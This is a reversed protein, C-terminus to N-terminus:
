KGMKSRHWSVTRVPIGLDKAIRGIGDGIATRNEIVWRLQAVSIDPRAKLPRSFLNSLPMTGRPTTTWTSSATRQVTSPCYGTRDGVDELTASGPAPSLGTLYSRQIDGLALAVAIKTSYRRAMDKVVKLGERTMADIRHDDWELPTMRIKPLNEELLVAARIGDPYLAVEPVVPHAREARGPSPDLRSLEDMAAKTRKETWGLSIAAQSYGGSTLAESAERLLTAGDGQERGMRALQLLLCHTLDRAFIGPPDLSGRAQDLIETLSEPDLGLNEAIDVESGALYGRYDLWDVLDRSLSDRRGKLAPLAAMQVILDDGISPQSTLREEWGDWDGISRPPDVRYILNDGLKSSLHETLEPLPMTLIKLEQILIPLPLPQLELRQVPSPTVNISAM